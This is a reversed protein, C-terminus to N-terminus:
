PFTTPRFRRTLDKPSLVFFLKGPTLSSRTTQAGKVLGPGSGQHNTPQRPLESGTDRDAESDDTLDFVQSGTRSKSDQAALVPATHPIPNENAPVLSAEIGCHSTSKCSPRPEAVIESRCQVTLGRTSAKGHKDLLQQTDSSEAPEEDDPNANLTISHNGIPQLTSSTASDEKEWSSKWKELLAGARKKFSFEAEPIEKLNTIKKLLKHTSTALAASRSPTVMDELKKLCSSMDKM